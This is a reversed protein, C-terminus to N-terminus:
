ARAWISRVELKQGMSGTYIFIKLIQKLGFEDRYLGLAVRNGRRTEARNGRDFSRTLELPWRSFKRVGLGAGHVHM